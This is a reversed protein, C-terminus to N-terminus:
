KDKKFRRYLSKRVRDLHNIVGKPLREILPRHFGFKMAIRGKATIPIFYKPLLVKVFGHRRKLETLNDVKNGYTYRGYLMHSAGKDCSIEVAKAILANIPRKASADVKSNISLVSSYEDVFVLKIFGILHDHAYAGIFVSRESM